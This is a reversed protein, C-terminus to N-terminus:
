RTEELEDDKLDRIYRRKGFRLPERLRPSRKNTAGPLVMQMLM